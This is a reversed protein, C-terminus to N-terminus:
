KGIVKKEASDACIIRISQASPLKETVETCNRDLDPCASNRKIYDEQKSYIHSLSKSRNRTQELEEMEDRVNKDPIQNEEEDKIVSEDKVGNMDIGEDPPSIGNDTPTMQRKTPKKLSYFRINIDDKEMLEHEKEILQLRKMCEDFNKTFYNEDHKEPIEYYGPQDNQHFAHLAPQISM